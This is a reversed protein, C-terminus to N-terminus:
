ANARLAGSLGARLTGPFGEGPADM